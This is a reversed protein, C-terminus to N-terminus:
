FGAGRYASRRHQTHEAQLLAARLRRDRAEVLCQGIRFIGASLRGPLGDVIPRLLGRAASPLLDTAGDADLARFHEASGPDGQRACRGIFQRDTRATGNHQCCIVHLGGAACVAESPHIDTGRGAMRTSLTIRGAQGADAVIAAEDADQLADLVVHPLGAVAFCASLARSDRVSDTGILVARGAAVLARARAVCAAWMAERTAFVRPTGVRRQGPRHTPLCVVQRDYVTALEAACERLTGSIGCLRHYRPFFRQYTIQAAAVTETGLACGEKLEVFRHLEQSWARGDAIRGTQADVISVRGDRVVYHRDRHYLHLAALAQRLRAERPRQDGGLVVGAVSGAATLEVGAGGTDLAYHEGAQLTRALALTASLTAALAAAGTQPRGLLLPMRAEDILVSDAEDIIAMCLGRLVRRGIRAPETFARVRESLSDTEFPALMGDRLYDFVLERATVYTVDALYAARRAHAPDGTRVMGVSLGLHAFLPRMEGADRAVLYDNATIVHVPTGTLAACAAAMAVVLTKGEGTAMEAFAGGLLAHAAALQVDHARLGLAAHAANAVIALAPERVDAALGPQRIATALAQRDIHRATDTRAQIRAAAALHATAGAARLRRMQRWAAEMAGAPATNQRRQPYHGHRLGPAAPPMTPLRLLTM